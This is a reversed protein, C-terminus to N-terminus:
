FSSTISFSIGNAAPVSRCVGGVCVVGERQRGYGIQFRNGKNAYGMAINYYHIQMDDEKNGYNYQDQVSFFWHPAVSYEVLGMVWSGMDENEDSFMKQIEWRISKKTTIKYTADLILNFAHVTPHGPKGRLVDFNYTLYQVTFITKLDNTIKKTIEMNIDEYYLDSFDVGFFDSEYGVTGPMGYVLAEVVTDRQINCVRSYNININTGYKGGLLTEKDFKYMFEAQFGFEGTPQTAYPYMAALSYTHNKTIVPLSNIPLVNLLENRDSRFSMNDVRKVGLLIGLGPKSYTINALFAQGDKFIYNNDGSPDNIKYAYETMLAFAGRNINLRGAFAAVNQPLNYPSSQIDNGQFKSMASGGLTVQTKSTNFAAFVENFLIEADFGRIIGPGHQITSFGDKEVFFQRQKAFIGKLYVGNGINYRLRIGDLANDYDVAKDEYSRLVLGSGFQEYFTGLTVNLNDSQYNVFRNSIGVGDNEKNFGLMPNMYGEFRLGASFNGHVYNINAYSNFLVGEPVKETKLVDDEMYYLGDAQLNGSVVAENQAKAFYSNALVVIVICIIKFSKKM